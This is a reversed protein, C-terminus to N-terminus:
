CERWIGLDDVGINVWSLNALDALDRDRDDAIGLLAQGRKVLLVALLIHLWGGLHFLPVIVQAAHLLTEWATILGGIIAQQIWLEDQFLETFGHPRFSDVTRAHALVLHPGRLEQVKFVRTGPDVGTASSGHAIGNGSGQTCLCRTWILFDPGDITIAAELHGVLFKGSCGQFAERKLNGDNIVAVKSHDPLPLRQKIILVIRVGLQAFFVGEGRVEDTQGFRETTFGDPDRAFFFDNRGNLARLCNVILWDDNVEDDAM